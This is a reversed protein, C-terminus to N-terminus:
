PTPCVARAASTSCNAHDEREGFTPQILTNLLQSKFSAQVAHCYRVKPKGTFEPSVVLFPKISPEGLVPRDNRQLRIQAPIEDWGFLEPHTLYGVALSDFPHFGNVRYRKRWLELWDYSARALWQCCAPGQALRELDTRDIWISSSVEWPVLSLPVGSDLLVGFAEPDLEFNFDRHPPGHSSETLSQGPRRGAVAVVQRIRPTLEPHRLIVSAVTTAPGLALITLAEKQLAKVLARTALTSTGLQAASEAGAFVKLGRPGFRQTVQSAIELTVSLAANGYSASLGCLQLQPSRFAQLLAFGDDVEHGGPRVSPDTDIWVREPAM